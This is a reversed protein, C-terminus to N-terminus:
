DFKPPRRLHLQTKEQYLQGVACLLGEQFHNGLLTISTPSSKATFGTPLLLAPHGTLNTLTLQNGGYSPCVILDYNSFIENVRKILESRIRNAQIYEVAPILRATRFSNPWSWSGQSVLLSDQNSLTLDNFAAAAEANLIIRLAKVPIDDPLKLAEFKAGLEKFVNLAKQDNEKFSYDEEFLDKLYAIKLNGLNDLKPYSFDADFVSLDLGDEGRIFDFVISCDESSRCIPGLKDMSWSLAMAGYKSVRGFGPRLGTVACRTSPSVISGLTESGIAFPLLGASVASAPGASSGSSGNETNWPNRTTGGYWVDGMALAGLSLKVIMIAGAESLSTIVSATEEFEQDKFPFAGWTTPYGPYALLDKVGYPIGHLIGKYNGSKIEIDAKRAAELAEKETINIVCFLEPNYKKLREIFYQTLAESTIRQSKILSALEPISYYALDTNNEPLEIGKPISWSFAGKNPPIAMGAPIPNFKLSPSVSNALKFNRISKYSSKQRVVGRSMQELEKQDFDLGILKSAVQVKAINKARQISDQAIVSHSLLITIILISNRLFALTM